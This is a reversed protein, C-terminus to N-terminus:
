SFALQRQRSKLTGTRHRYLKDLHNTRPIRGCRQRLLLTRGMPQQEIERKPRAVESRTAGRVTDRHLSKKWGGPPRQGVRLLYQVELGGRRCLEAVRSASKADTTQQWFALRDRCCLIVEQFCRGNERGFQGTPGSIYCLRSRRTYRQHKFQSVFQSFSLLGLHPCSLLKVKGHRDM